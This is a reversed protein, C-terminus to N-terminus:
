FLVGMLGRVKIFEQHWIILHSEAWARSNYEVSEMRTANRKNEVKV